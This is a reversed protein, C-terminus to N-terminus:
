KKWFQVIDQLLSVRAPYYSAMTQVFFLFSAFVTTGSFGYLVTNLLHQMKEASTQYWAGIGMFAMIGLLFYIDMYYRNLIYPTWMVDIGIIVIVTIPLCVLLPVLRNEKILQRAPTTFAFVSLLLIPFNFFAGGHTLYPFIVSQKTAGFLMSKIGDVIKVSTALTLDFSYGTQDSVTLQYAQGFEFPDDFRAYNYCMLALGVVFYPSAALLLKGLLPLSIQKKKLYVVLMPIVLINALAISPRCGFVLAGLLAGIAAYRIQKNEEETDWVAKIFFFLSWIELALAATIATCYLAPEASAYWICMGSIAVSLALYVSHPLKPFFRKSLLQFLAFIGFIFVATYLTTARYTTLSQGTLARYPLFTILVPVIGFYMYYRGNYYAHDWHFFVEKERRENPDYPNDLDELTYEDGYAFHLRGELLNEAMLEYQNRHDPDEGNWIPFDNMPMICIAITLVIALITSVTKGKSQGTVTLKHMQAQPRFFYLFLGALGIHMAVVGWEETRHFAHLYSMIVLWITYFWVPQKLQQKWKFEKYTIPKKVNM